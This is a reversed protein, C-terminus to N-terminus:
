GHYGRHVVGLNIYTYATGPQDFCPVIRVTLTSLENEAVRHFKIAMREYANDSTMPTIQSLLIEAAARYACARIVRFDVALTGWDPYGAATSVAADLWERAAVRQFLFEDESPLQDLFPCVAKVDAYSVYPRKQSPM